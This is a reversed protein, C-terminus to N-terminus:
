GLVIEEDKMLKVQDAQLWIALAERQPDQPAAPLVEAGSGAALVSGGNDFDFKLGWVNFPARRGQSRAEELTRLMDLAAVQPDIARLADIQRYMESGGAGGGGWCVGWDECFDSLSKAGSKCRVTAMWPSEYRLGEFGAARLTDMFSETAVTEARQGGVLGVDLTAVLAKRLWDRMEVVSADSLCEFLFLDRPYADGGAARLRENLAYAVRLDGLYPLETATVPQPRALYPENAGARSVPFPITVDGEFSVLERPWDAVYDRLAPDSQESWRIDGNFLVPMSAYGLSKLVEARHRGEFGRVRAVGGEGLDFMLYPADGLPVEGKILEQIHARKEASVADDERPACLSLFRDTSMSIVRERSKWRPGDLGSLARSSFLNEVNKM